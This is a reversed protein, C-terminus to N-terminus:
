RSRKTAQPSFSRSWTHTRGRAVTRVGSGLLEISSCVGWVEGSGPDWRKLYHVSYPDFMRGGGRYPCAFCGPPPKLQVSPGGSNRQTGRLTWSNNHLHWANLRRRAGSALRPGRRGIDSSRDDKALPDELEAAIERASERRRKRRPPCEWTEFSPMGYTIPVTRTSGCRLV